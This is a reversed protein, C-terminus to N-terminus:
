YGPPILVSSATNAPLGGIEVLDETNMVKTHLLPEDLDVRM